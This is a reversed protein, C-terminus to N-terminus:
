NEQFFSGAVQFGLLIPLADSQNMSMFAAYSGCTGHQSLWVPHYLM